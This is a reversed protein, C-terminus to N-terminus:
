APEAEDESPRRLRKVDLGAGRARMAQSTDYTAFTLPRGTLAQLSVARDIIEDDALDMRVHGHPDLVVEAWVKGRPIEGADIGSFDEEQLLGPSRPDGVVRELVALSYMSRWRAPQQKSDKLRDLEDLIIIPFFWHIPEDRVGVIQRLDVEEMKAANILFSTDALLFRGSRWSKTRAELWKAASDLRDLGEATERDVIDIHRGTLQTPLQVLRWYVPTLVLDSLTSPKVAYRLLNATQNAWQIYSDYRESAGGSRTNGLRSHAERLGKLANDIPVGPLLDIHM